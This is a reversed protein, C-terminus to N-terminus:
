ADQTLEHVVHVLDLRHFQHQLVHLGGLRIHLEKVHHTSTPLKGEKVYFL